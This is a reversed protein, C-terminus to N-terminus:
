PKEQACSSCNENEDVQSTPCGCGQCIYKM